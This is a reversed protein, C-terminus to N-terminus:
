LDPIFKGLGRIKRGINECAPRLAEILKERQVDVSGEGGTDGKLPEYTAAQLGDLDTPRKLKNDWACVFFTRERGLRGMFMGLELLVNDRPGHKMSGGSTVKDDASLVLVAFDFQDLGQLLAEMTFKGLEFFDTWVMVEADEELLSKVARALALGKGSSGIFLKPKLGAPDPPEVASRWAAHWYHDLLSYLNSRGDEGGGQYVIGEVGRQKGVRHINLQWVEDDILMVRHFASLSEVQLWRLELRRDDATKHRVEEFLRKWDNTRTNVDQALSANNEVKVALEPSFMLVQMELGPNNVLTQQLIERVQPFLTKSSYVGLRISRRARELAECLEHCAENDNAWGVRRILRREQEHRKNVIKSIGEVVSKHGPLAESLTEDFPERVMVVRKKNRPSEALVGRELLADIALSINEAREAGTFYFELDEILCEKTDRYQRCLLLTYVSAETEGLGAAELSKAVSDESERLRAKM